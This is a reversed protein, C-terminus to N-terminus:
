TTSAPTAAAAQANVSVEHLVLLLLALLLMFPGLIELGSGRALVGALGPLGAAGVNAAAVQFGIAHTAYAAGLRAPTQAILLPFIPALMFGILALGLFSLLPLPNLWLLLVGVLIGGMSGRLLATTGFREAILGFLLRGVTLSGWYISIWVGAVDPVVAREEIFLSYSWQGATVELGTYIFFIAIGLWVLPRRLTAGMSVAPTASLQQGATDATQVDTQNKMQGDQWRRRTIGFCIVMGSLVLGVLAYGWRWSQDRSLVFTLALPGLAAGLGYCAHLWNMHRRTFHAAAYANIGADITGSGMGLLLSMAVVTWWAPALAYGFLGATLLLSSGFLVGGVGLRTVLRGANFSTFIFGITFVALLIGLDSLPRMFTTRLAPWAVGPLGDPLGLCIFALYAISILLLSTRKMTIITIGEIVRTVVPCKVRHFGSEGAAPCFIGHKKVVNKCM